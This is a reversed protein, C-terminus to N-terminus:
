RTARYTFWAAFALRDSARYDLLIGEGARSEGGWWTGVIWTKDAAAFGQQVCRATAENEILRSLPYTGNGFGAANAEDTQWSLTATTCSTFEIRVRGWRKRQVDAVRFQSGFRAGNASQIDNFELVNGNLSTTGSVWFQTGMQAVDLPPRAQENRLLLAFTPGNLGGSGASVLANGLSGNAPNVTVVANGNILLLENNLGYDIGTPRSLGSAVVQVNGSAMNYKLLQGSTEGTIWLHQNDRDALIARSGRLGSGLSPIAISTIGTAPDFRVVSNSDYGPVYIKGDPARLLGNDPGRVGGGNVAVARTPNRGNADFRKVDESAYGGVYVEGNTGFTLGTPATDLSLAIFEGLYEFTDARYRLIQSSNESVVYIAGDPGLRIAQPGAIRNATDLNRLHAGTCADFIHVNNSFYGSVLLKGGCPTQASVNAVATALGALLAIKAFLLFHKCCSFSM